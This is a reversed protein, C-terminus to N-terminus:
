SAKVEYRKEAGKSEIRLRRAYDDCIEDCINETILALEDIGRYGLSLFITSLVAAIIGMATTLLSLAIHSSFMQIPNVGYTVDVSGMKWYILGLGTCTGFIGCMSSIKTAIDLVTWARYHQIETLLAEPYHIVHEKIEKKRFTYGNDAFAKDVKVWVMKRFNTEVTKLSTRRKFITSDPVYPVEVWEKHKRLVLCLNLGQDLSLGILLVMIGVGIFLVIM